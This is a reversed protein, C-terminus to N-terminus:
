ELKGVQMARLPNKSVVIDVKDGFKIPLIFNSDLAVVAEHHMDSVFSLDKADGELLEPNFIRSVFPERVLFKMGSAFPKGGASKYWATSGTATVILVGSSRQTEKKDGLILDYRSTYFQNSAGFYVENLAQEKVLKGNIYVSAREVNNVEYKELLLRPLVEMTNEDLNMLGGESTKSDSNIGLILENEICHSAQILTGDGGLVLVLDYNKFIGYSIDKVLFEKVEVRDELIKRLRRLVELNREEVKKSFVLAIKKIKTYKM